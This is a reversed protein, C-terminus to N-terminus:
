SVNEVRRKEASMDVEVTGQPGHCKTLNLCM